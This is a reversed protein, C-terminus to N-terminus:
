GGVSLAPRDGRVRPLGTDSQQGASQYLDIGAYAPSVGDDMAVQQAARTSGRTRPPSSIATSISRSAAPRDGRVRPLGTRGTHSATARPDIGAYAPSVEQDQAAFLAPLTSGRTRPPSLAQLRVQTRMYPRDGRVRPLGSCIAASFRFLLDIGAYAPSVHHQGAELRHQRTSGRTRPPSVKLTAM